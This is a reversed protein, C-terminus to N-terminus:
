LADEYLSFPGQHIAARVGSLAGGPVLAESRSHYRKIAACVSILNLVKPAPLVTRSDSM